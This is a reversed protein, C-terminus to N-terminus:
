LTLERARVMLAVWLDCFRIRQRKQYDADLSTAEWGNHSVTLTTDRERRGLNINCSTPHLWAEHGLDFQVNSPYDLELNSIKLVSPESGDDVKFTAGSQLTGNIPLWRAQPSDYFLRDWIREPSGPLETSGEFEHRWPYRTPKGKRLFKELRHTFDMWGKRLVLAEERTREREFDTVTVLSGQDTGVIHWTIIDLPGTGLFRWAYQLLAEPEIRMPQLLFFDGDGFEVRTTEGVRLRSTLDGFWRAVIAPETLARWVEGVSASVARTVQVTGPATTAAELSESSLKLM